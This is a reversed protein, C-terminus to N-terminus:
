RTPGALASVVSVIFCQLTVLIHYLVQYLVLLIDDRHHM